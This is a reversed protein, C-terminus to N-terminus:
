DGDAGVGLATRRDTPLNEGTAAIASDTATSCINGAYRALYGPALHSYKLVMDMGSWGGLQQLVELPTGAMVHWSAWTHRLTHFSVDSLEARTAKRRM